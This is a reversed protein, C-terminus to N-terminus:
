LAELWLLLKELWGERVAQGVVAFAHLQQRLVGSGAASHCYDCLLSCYVLNIAAVCRLAAIIGKKDAAQFGV